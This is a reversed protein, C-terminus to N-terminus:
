TFAHTAADPKRGTDLVSIRGVPKAALDAFRQPEGVRHPHETADRRRVPQLACGQRCRWRGKERRNAPSSRPPAPPFRQVAPRHCKPSRSTQCKSRSVLGHAQIKSAGDQVPVGARGSKRGQKQGVQGSSLRKVGVATEYPGQKRTPCALRSKIQRASPRPRKKM